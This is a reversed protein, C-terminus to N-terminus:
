RLFPVALQYPIFVIHTMWERGDYQSTHGHHTPRIYRITVPTSESTPTGYVYRTEWSIVYSVSIVTTYLLDSILIVVSVGLGWGWPRAIPHRNHPNPLFNVANYHCRVTDERKDIDDCGLKACVLTQVATTLNTKMLCYTLMPEPLPKAGFLCCAKAKVLSSGNGHHMYTDGLRLSNIPCADPYRTIPQFLKNLECNCYM